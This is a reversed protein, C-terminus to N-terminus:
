SLGCKTFRAVGVAAVKTPLRKYPREAAAPASSIASSRSASASLHPHEATRMERQRGLVELAELNSNPRSTTVWTATHTVSITPCNAWLSIRSTTPALAVQRAM